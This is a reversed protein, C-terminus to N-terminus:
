GPLSELILTEIKQRTETPLKGILVNDIRTNNIQIYNTNVSGCGEATEKTLDIFMKLAKVDGNQFALYYLQNLATGNLIRYKDRDEAKYESLSNGKIHKNVTVRSLGTKNSIETNTPLYRKTVLTNHIYQKILGENLYWRDRKYLGILYESEGRAELCEFLRIYYMDIECHTPPPERNILETLKEQLWSQVEKLKEPATEQLKKFDELTKVKDFETFKQLGKKNM